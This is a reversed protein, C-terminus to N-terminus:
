KRYPRVVRTQPPRTTSRSYPYMRKRIPSLSTITKNGSTSLDPELHRSPPSVSLSTREHATRSPVYELAAAPPATDSKVPPSYPPSSPVGSNPMQAESLESSGSQSCSDEPRLPPTSSAPGHAVPSHGTTYALNQQELSEGPIVQRIKAMILDRHQRFQDETIGFEELDKSIAHEEYQDVVPHRGRRTLRSTASAEHYGHRVENIFKLVVKELRANSSRLSICAFDAM